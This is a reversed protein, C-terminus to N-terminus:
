MFNTAMHKGNGRMLQEQLFVMKEKGVKGNVDCVVVCDFMDMM